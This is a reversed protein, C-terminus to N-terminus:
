RTTPKPCRRARRRQRRRDPGGRQRAAVADAVARAWESETVALAALERRRTTSSSASPRPPRAGCAGRRRATGVAARWARWATPWRARSRPSDASRTSWAASRRPKASRSTRTSATSPRRARAGLEALQALTAPRGNIWARSRGQADLVRRLLVEDGDSGLEHEALWARSPRARRRRRIGRRAGRPRRGARLQRLEFRDGLLLGLADLLISKGAGTEGTLVTFGTASSSTSRPSSSSTASRSRVCCPVFPRHRADSATSAAAVSRRAADSGRLRRAAAFQARADRELAAERAADRLLRPRGPHLFRARFAARRLTVRTAKPSRSTRRATATCAPTAAASRRHDRDVADDSIAIPRHTLAHPAVPVLLFSACSRRSSRAARPCRTPPPAPRRPSSSATPACRSYAFRGDIDVACEIM